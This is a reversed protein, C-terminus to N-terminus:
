FKILSNLEKEIKNQLQIENYRYGYNYYTEPNTPKFRFREYFQDLFNVSNREKKIWEEDSIDDFQYEDEDEEIERELKILSKHKFLNCSIYHYMREIQKDELNCLREISSKALDFEVCFFERKESLRNNRLVYFLVREAYISNKFERTSTHSFNSKDIYSTTYSNLRNKLNCTRGLKYVHEGYKKFVDNNLIYLYGKM